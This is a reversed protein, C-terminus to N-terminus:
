NHEFYHVAPMRLCYGHQVTSVSVQVYHRGEKPYGKACVGFRYNAAQHAPMGAYLAPDVNLVIAADTDKNPNRLLNALPARQQGPLEGIYNDAIRTPYPRGVYTIEMMADGEPSEAFFAVSHDNSIGPHVITCAIVPEDKSAQGATSVNLLQSDSFGMPLSCNAHAAQSALVLALVFIHKMEETQYNFM